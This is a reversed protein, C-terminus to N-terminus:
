RRWAPESEQEFHTFARSLGDLVEASTEFLARARPDDVKGVDERPHRALDDFRERVQTTHHRPDNEAFRQSM